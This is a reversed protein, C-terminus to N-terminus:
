IATIGSLSKQAAQLWQLDCLVEDLQHHCTELRQLWEQGEACQQLHAQLSRCATDLRHNVNAIQQALELQDM